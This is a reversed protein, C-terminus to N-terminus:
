VAKRTTQWPKTPGKVKRCLTCTTVSGACAKETPRRGISATAGVGCAPGEARRCADRVAECSFDCVFSDPEPGAMREKTSHVRM